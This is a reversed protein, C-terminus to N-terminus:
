NAKIIEDLYKKVLRKRPMNLQKSAQTVSSYLIGDIYVEKQNHKKVPDGLKRLGLGYKIYKKISGVTYGTLRSAEEISNYSVEDIIVTTANHPIQGSKYFTHKIREKTEKTHTKGYFPNNEGSYMESLLKKASETTKYGKNGGGGDNLNCLTGLGLDRRGYLKIFEMEKELAFEYSVDNFLIEVDYDTKNTIFKWFRNRGVRKDYARRLQTGVGVYFVQNTDLRIHRYVFAM